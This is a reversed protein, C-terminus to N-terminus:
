HSLECPIDYMSEIDSGPLQIRFRILFNKADKPIQLAGQAYHAPEDDTMPEFVTPREEALVTEADEAVLSNHVIADAVDDDGRSIKVAPEITDGGHFHDGHHGLSLTFDGEQIDLQVWTLVDAADHTHKDDAEPADATPPTADGSGTQTNEPDQCGVIILMMLAMLTYLISQIM